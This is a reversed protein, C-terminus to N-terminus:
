LYNQSSRKSARRALVGIVAGLGAGILGALVDDLLEVRGRSLAQQAEVLFVLSAGVALAVWLRRSAMVWLVGVPLFLLINAFFFPEGSSLQGAAMQWERVSLMRRVIGEAGSFGRWDLLGDRLRWTAAIIFCVWGLGAATWWVPWRRSRILYWLVVAAVGVAVAAVLWTSLYSWHIIFGSRVNQWSSM